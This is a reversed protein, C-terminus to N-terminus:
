RLPDLKGALQLETEQPEVAAGPRARQVGNVVVRDSSQLGESVVVYEGVRQALQVPRAEVINEANVVAVFDGRQDSSIAVQPVLLADRPQGIPVRVRVFMGPTMLRDKNEFVGRLLITGTGPDVRNERFEIVGEHPYGKETELGAFVPIKGDTARAAGQERIRRQYDLLGRETADFYVYIPDVSVITTLLTPENYGVLNGETVLTRSIQGDIPAAIKTYSLELEATELTARAEELSAEAQERTAIRSQLEEETVAGTGIIGATRREESRALAVQAKLRSIEAKRQAVNAEYERPDIEYLVDGKQVEAGEKFNVKRLFGRVRARIEATEVAATEGTFTQYETVPHTVPHSVTVKPPPPPNRGAANPRGCGVNFSAVVLLTAPLLM